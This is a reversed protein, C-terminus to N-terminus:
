FIYFSRVGPELQCVSRRVKDNCATVSVICHKLTNDDPLMDAFGKRSCSNLLAADSFTVKKVGVGMRHERYNTAIQDQLEVTRPVQEHAKHKKFESANLESTESRKNLPPSWSRYSVIEDSVKLANALKLKRTLKMKKQRLISKEHKRQIKLKSLSTPFKKKDPSKLKASYGYSSFNTVTQPTESEESREM